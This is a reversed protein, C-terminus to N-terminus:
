DRAHKKRIYERIGEDMQGVTQRKFKRSGFVAEHIEKSTYRKTLRLVIEGDKVDWDLSSGPVIGLKKIVDAPITIQGEASVKSRAIM